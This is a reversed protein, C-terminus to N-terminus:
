KKLSHRATPQMNFFDKAEQMNSAVDVKNHRRATAAATEPKLVIKYPAIENGQWIGDTDEYLTILGDVADENYGYNTFQINGDEKFGAVLWANDFYDGSESDYTYVAVTDAYKNKGIFDQGSCYLLGGFFDLKLDVVDVLSDLGNGTKEDTFLGKLVLQDGVLAISVELSDKAGENKFYAMYKGVYDAKDAGAVISGFGNEVPEEDEEDDAVVDDLPYGDTWTFELTYYDYLGLSSSNSDYGVLGNITYKNQDKVAKCGYSGPIYVWYFNGYDSDYYGMMQAQPIADIQYTEKTMAFQFHYGEEETYDPDLIHELDKLRVLIMSANEFEVAQELDVEANEESGWTDTAKVTGIKKWSYDVTLTIEIEAIGKIALAASDTTQIQALLASDIAMTITYSKGTAMGEINFTIDAFAEGDKFVAETPIDFLPDDCDVTIAVTSDGEVFNRALRVTYVTDKYDPKYSAASEETLFSFGKEEATPTYITGENGNDCAALSLLLVGALLSMISNIKKM